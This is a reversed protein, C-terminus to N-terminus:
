NQAEDKTQTLRAQLLFKCAAPSLAKKGSYKTQRMSRFLPLAYLDAALMAAMASVDLLPTMWGSNDYRSDTLKLLM